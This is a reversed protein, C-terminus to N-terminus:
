LVKDILYSLINFKTDNTHEFYHGLENSKQFTISDNKNILDNIFKIYKVSTFSRFNPITELSPSYIIFPHKNKLQSLGYKFIYYIEKQKLVPLDLNYFTDVSNNNNNDNLFETLFEQLQVLSDSGTTWYAPHEYYDKFTDIEHYKEINNIILIQKFLSLNKMIDPANTNMGSKDALALRVVDNNSLFSTVISGTSHKNLKQRKGRGRSVTKTKLSRKKLKKKTERNVKM